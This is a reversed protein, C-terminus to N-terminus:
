NLLRRSADAQEVRSTLLEDMSALLLARRIPKSLTRAAGSGIADTAQCALLVKAALSGDIRRLEDIFAAATMDPIRADLLVAQLGGERVASLAEVGSSAVVVDFRDSLARTAARLFRPDADVVLVRARHPALAAFTPAAEVPGDYASEPRPVFAVFRVGGDAAREAVLEGDFSRLAARAVALRGEVTVTFPTSPPAADLGPRADIVVAAAEPLNRVAVRLRRLSPPPEAPIADLAQVMIQALTRALLRRPAIAATTGPEAHVEVHALLAGGGGLARLVEDILVILAVPERPEDHSVRALLHADRIVRALHEVSASSDDLAADFEEITEFSVTGSRVADLDLALAALPGEAAHSMGDLVQELTRAEIAHDDRVAARLSARRVARQLTQADVPEVLVEDVGSAILKDVEDDSSVVAVVGRSPTSRRAEDVVAIVPGTMREVITSRSLPPGLESVLTRLTATARGTTLVVVAVPARRVM